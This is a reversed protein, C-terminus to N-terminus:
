KDPIHLVSEDRLARAVIERKRRAYRQQETEIESIYHVTTWLSV